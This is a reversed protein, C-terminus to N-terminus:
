QAPTAPAAGTDGAMRQAILPIDTSSHATAVISDSAPRRHDKVADGHGVVVAYSSCGTQSKASGRRLRRLRLPFCPWGGWGSMRACAPIWVKSDRRAQSLQIGAHAPILPPQFTRMRGLPAHPGASNRVPEHASAMSRVSAVSTSRSVCRQKRTATASAAPMGEAWAGVSKQSANSRGSLEVPKWGERRFCSRSSALPLLFPLLAAFWM